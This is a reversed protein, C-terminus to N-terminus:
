NRISAHIRHPTITWEGSDFTNITSVRDCLVNSIYKEKFLANLSEIADFIEGTGYGSKNYIDMQFFVDTYFPAASSMLDRDDSIPIINPEIFFTLADIESQTLVINNKIYVTTNNWKIAIDALNLKLYSELESKITKISM